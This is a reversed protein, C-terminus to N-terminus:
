PKDPAIPKGHCNSQRTMAQRTMAKGPEGKRAAPSYLEIRHGGFVNAIGAAGGPAPLKKSRRTTFEIVDSGVAREILHTTITPRMEEYRRGAKALIM